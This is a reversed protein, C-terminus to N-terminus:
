AEFRALRDPDSTFAHPLIADLDEAGFRTWFGPNRADIRSSLGDVVVSNAISALKLEVSREITAGAGIRIDEEHHAAFGQLKVDLVYTGPPLIPFRLQGNASTTLTELGGILAPSGVSVQAGALVGGQEDRVTGILAGTLGQAVTVRRFLVCATLLLVVPWARRNTM